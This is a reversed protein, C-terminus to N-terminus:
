RVFNDLNETSNAETLSRMFCMNYEHSEMRTIIAIVKGTHSDILRGWQTATAAHEIFLRASRYRKWFDNLSVGLVPEIIMTIEVTPKFSVRFM